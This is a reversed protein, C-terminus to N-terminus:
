NEIKESDHSEVCDKNNDVDGVIMSHLLYAENLNKFSDSHNSMNLPINIHNFINFTYFKEENCVVKNASDM